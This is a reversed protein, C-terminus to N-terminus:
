RAKEHLGEALVEVPSGSAMQQVTFLKLADASERVYWAASSRGRRSTVHGMSGWWICDELPYRNSLAVGGQWGVPVTIRWLLDTSKQLIQQSTSKREDDEQKVSYCELLKVSTRAILSKSKMLESWGCAKGAKM